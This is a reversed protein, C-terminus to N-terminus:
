HMPGTFICKLRSGPADQGVQSRKRCHPPACLTLHPGHYGEGGLIQFNIRISSLHTPVAEFPPHMKLHFILQTTQPIFCELCLVSQLHPPTHTFPFGQPALGLADKQLSAQGPLTLERAAWTRDM